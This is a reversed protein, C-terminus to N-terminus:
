FVFINRKYFYKGDNEKFIIDDRACGSYLECKVGINIRDDTIEDYLYYGQECSMCNLNSVCNERNKTYILAKNGMISGISGLQNAPSDVTCFDCVSFDKFNSIAVLLTKSLSFSQMKSVEITIGRLFM